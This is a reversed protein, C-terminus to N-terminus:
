QREIAKFGRQPDRFFGILEVKGIPKKNKKMLVDDM